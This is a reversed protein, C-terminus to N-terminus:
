AAGVDFARPQPCEYHDLRSMLREIAAM